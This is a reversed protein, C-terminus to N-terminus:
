PVPSSVIYSGIWHDNGGLLHVKEQIYKSNISNLDALRAGASECLQKAANQSSFSGFYYCANSHEEYDEPCEAFL